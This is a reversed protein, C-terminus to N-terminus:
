ENSISIQAGAGLKFYLSYESYFKVDRITGTNDKTEVYASIILNDADWINQIQQQTLTILTSSVTRYIVRGDTDLVGSPLINRNTSDFLSDVRVWNSDVFYVQLELDIPLGNETDLQIYMSNINEPGFDSDDDSLDFEFTDTLVVDEIRLHMPIVAEVNITMKSTDQLFNDREGGPNSLAHVSYQLGRLDTTGIENINSNSRDISAETSVSQGIQALTPADVIFPNDNPDINIVLNSGDDFRGEVEQLEVEFIVGLSNMINLHLQPDYLMITGEFNGELLDIDMTQRDVIMSDYTGTYGYFAQWELNRLTQRIDVVEAALIDAGSNVLYFDFSMDLFTTDPDPNDLRLTNGALDIIIQDTFSGSPDSILIPQMYPQGNIEINNSRIELIGTHRITSIVDIVLEGAKLQISDAQEDRTKAFRFSRDQTFLVTDGINGLSAGPIDGPGSFFVQIFQQELLTGFFDSAFITKSTDYVFFLFGTSDESITGTTDFETLLDEISLDGFVMPGRVGPEWQITTDYKDPNFEDPLCSVAFFVLSLIFLYPIYKKFTMHIPSLYRM